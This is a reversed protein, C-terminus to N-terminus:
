EAPTTESPSQSDQDTTSESEPAPPTTITIEQVVEGENETVSEPAPPTTITFEKIIKPEPEPAFVLPTALKDLIDKRAQAHRTFFSLGPGASDIVQQYYQGAKDWHSRTEAIAALGFLANIRFEAFKSENIVLNYLSEAENLSEEVAQDDMTDSDSAHIARNLFGDAGRLAALQRIIPDTHRKIIDRHSEPSGTLALESWAAEHIKYNHSNWLRYVMFAIACVAIIALLTNGNKSWWENFHRLFEELDNQKLEHREQTDM